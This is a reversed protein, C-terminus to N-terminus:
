TGGNVGTDPDEPPDPDDEEDPDEDLAAAKPPLPSKMLATNPDDPLRALPVVDEAVLVAADAAAALADTVLIPKTRNGVIDSVTRHIRLRGTPNVSVRARNIASVASVM